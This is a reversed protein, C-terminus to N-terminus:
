QYLYKEKQYKSGYKELLACVLSNNVSMIVAASADIRAVEEMALTYSITDMGAGGWKESVMMGLFGMKAMKAVAEKPWIKNEDREIAGPLLENVAFERANKKILEHEETLNFKM